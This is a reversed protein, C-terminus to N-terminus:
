SCRSPAAVFASSLCHALNSSPKACASQANSLTDASLCTCLDLEAGFAVAGVASQCHLACRELSFGNAFTHASGRQGAYADVYTGNTRNTSFCGLHAAQWNPAACRATTQSGLRLRLALQDTPASLYRAPIPTLDIGGPVVRELTASVDYTKSSSLNTALTRTLLPLTASSSVHLLPKAGGGLFTIDMALQSSSLQGASAGVDQKVLVGEAATTAGILRDLAATLVDPSAGVPVFVSSVNSGTMSIDVGGDLCAPATTLVTQSIVKGSADVHLLSSNSSADCAILPHTLEVMWVITSNTYAISPVAADIYTRGPLALLATSLEDASAGVAFTTSSQGNHRFSVTDAFNSSQYWLSSPADVDFADCDVGAACDLRTLTIQQMTKVPAPRAFVLRQTEYAVTAEEGFPM